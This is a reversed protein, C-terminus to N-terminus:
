FGGFGQLYLTQLYYFVRAHSSEFGRCRPGYGLARDLQAVRVYSSICKRAIGTVPISGTSHRWLLIKLGARRGTGGCPCITPGIPSSGIVRQKYPLHEGLQALIGRTVQLSHSLLFIRTHCVRIALVRINRKYGLTLAPHRNSSGVYM